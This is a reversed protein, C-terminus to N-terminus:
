SNCIFLTYELSYYDKIVLILEGNYLSLSNLNNIRKINNIKYEFTKGLTNTFSITDFINYSKYSYFSDKLNTGLIIFFNNLYKCGSKIDLYFNNCNNEIPLLLNNSPINIIGLYDINDIEIIPNIFENSIEINQITFINNFIDIVKKNIKINKIININIFLFICIIILLLISSIVQIYKKM